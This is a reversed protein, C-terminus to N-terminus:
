DETGNQLWDILVAKEHDDLAQVISRLPELHNSCRGFWTGTNEEPTPGVTPGKVQERVQRTTLGDAEAQDLIEDQKEPELSEVEVHHKFPLNVRRRTIEFAKCIRAVNALTKYSRGTVEIAAKYTEGWKQEGYNIWDGIWWQWGDQMDFLSRGLSEWKELPMDKVFVLGVQSCEIVGGKMTLLSGGRSGNLSLSSSPTESKGQEVSTFNEPFGMMWELLDIPPRYGYRLANAEVEESYRRRGTKSFGWGRANKGFAKTPTPLLFSGKAVIHATPSPLEYLTGNRMMGSGPLTESFECGEGDLSLQSTKWSSTSPDYSALSGRTNLGCDAESEM